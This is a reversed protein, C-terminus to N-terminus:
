SAKVCVDKALELGKGGSAKEPRERTQNCLHGGAKLLAQGTGSNLKNHPHLVWEVM